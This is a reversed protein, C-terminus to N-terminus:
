HTIIEDSLVYGHISIERLIQGWDGAVTDLKLLDEKVQHQIGAFRHGIATRRLALQEDSRFQRLARHPYGDGITAAANRLLFHFLNELTEEGRFLFSHPKAEGDASGDNVCVPPFDPGRIIGVAARRKM